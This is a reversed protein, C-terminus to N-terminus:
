KVYSLRFELIGDTILTPIEKKTTLNCTKINNMSEQPHYDNNVFSSILRIFIYAM